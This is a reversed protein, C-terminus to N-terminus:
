AIGIGKEVDIEFPYLYTELGRLISLSKDENRFLLVKENKQAINAKHIKRVTKIGFIYFEVKSMKNYEELVIGEVFCSGLLIYVEKM